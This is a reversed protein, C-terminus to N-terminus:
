DGEKVSEKRLYKEELERKVRGVDSGHFGLCDSFNNMYESSFMRAVELPAFRVGAGEMERRKEICLYIDEENTNLGGSGFISASARLFGISRLSFGGNGVVDESPRKWGTICQEMQNMMQPISPRVMPAGVYDYNLFENTWLHPNIIFGDVHCVLAFPADCLQHFYGVCMDSYWKMFFNGGLEPPPPPRGCNVFTTGPIGPDIDSVVVERHFRFFKRHWDIIRRVRPMMEQRTEVIISNVPLDIIEREPVVFEDMRELPDTSDAMMWETHPREGYEELHPHYVKLRMDCIVRKGMEKAAQCIFYHETFNALDRMEGPSDYRAGARFVDAPVIYFAGVSELEVIPGEHSFFPKYFSAHRKEKEIFGMTDYWKEVGESKGPDNKDEQLVMPAIVDDPYDMMREVTEADYRIDADIWLVGTHYPKLHEDLITQRIWSVHAARDKHCRIGMDGPGREDIKVDVRSGLRIRLAEAQEFCRKKLVEPMNSKLPILVLLM